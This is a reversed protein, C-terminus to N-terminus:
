RNTRLPRWLLIRGVTRGTRRVYAEARGFRSYIRCPGAPDFRNPSCSPSPESERDYFSEQPGAKRDAFVRGCGSVRPLGSAVALRCPPARPGDTYPYYPPLYHPLPAPRRRAGHYTTALRRASLVGSAWECLLVPASSAAVCSLFSATVVFRDHENVLWGAAVAYSVAPECEAAYSAPSQTRDAAVADNVLFVLHEIDHM